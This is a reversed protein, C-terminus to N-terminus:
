DDVDRKKAFIIRRRSVAIAYRHNCLKRSCAKRDSWNDVVIHNLDGSFWVVPDELNNLDHKPL